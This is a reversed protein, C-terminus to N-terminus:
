RLSDAASQQANNVDLRLFSFEGANYVETGILMRDITPWQRMQEGVYMGEPFHSEEAVFVSQVATSVPTVQLFRDSAASISPGVASVEPICYGENIYVRIPLGTKSIKEWLRLAFIPVMRRAELYDDWVVFISDSFTTAKFSRSRSMFELVVQAFCDQICAIRDIIKTSKGAFLEELYYKTGKVDGLLAVHKYTTKM